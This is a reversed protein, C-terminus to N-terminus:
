HSQVSAMYKHGVIKLVESLIGITHTYKMFSCDSYKKCKLLMDSTITCLNFEMNM